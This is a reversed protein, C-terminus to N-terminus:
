AKGRTPGRKEALYTDIPLHDLHGLRCGHVQFGLFQWGPEPSTSHALTEAGHMLEAIVTTAIENGIEIATHQIVLLHQRSRMPFRPGVRAFEDAADRVLVGSVAVGPLFAALHDADQGVDRALDISKSIDEITPRDRRVLRQPVRSNIKYDVAELILRIEGIQIRNDSLLQENAAVETSGVAITWASKLVQQRLNVHGSSIGLTHSKGVRDPEYQSAETFKLFTEGPQGGSRRDM